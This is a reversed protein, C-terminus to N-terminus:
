SALYIILSFYVGWESLCPWFIFHLFQWITQFIRTFSLIERWLVGGMTLWLVASREKEKDRCKYKQWVIRWKRRTVKWHQTVSETNSYKSVRAILRHTSGCLAGYVFLHDRSILKLCIHRPTLNEWSLRLLLKDNVSIQFKAELSLVQYGSLRWEKYIYCYALILHSLSVGTSECQAIIPLWTVSQNAPSLPSGPPHLPSLPSLFLELMFLAPFPRIYASESPSSVVSGQGKM